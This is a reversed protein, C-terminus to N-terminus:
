RTFFRFHGQVEGTEADGLCASIGVAPVAATVVVSASDGGGADDDDDADDLSVILEVSETM